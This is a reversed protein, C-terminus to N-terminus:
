ALAGNELFRRLLRPSLHYVPAELRLADAPILRDAVWRWIM